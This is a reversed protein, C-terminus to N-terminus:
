WGGGLAKYLAVLNTNLTARSQTLADESSYLSRQADLVDLFNSLGQGYRIQALELAKRNANMAEVLSTQRQKEATYSALSDEVDKLATLVAQEYTAASQRERSEAAQINARTAPYNLLGWSFSSGFSWISAAGSLLKSLTGSQGGTGGTLSFKPYLNSVAVGVRAASGAIEREAQRVDPRRRLLDSPLGVPVEPPAEPTAGTASLEAQVTSPEIGLLLAIAHISRQAQAELAPIAARTSEAQAKARVPDLDSTLGADRRLETLRLVEEQATLTRRAVALREQAQRLDLYNRATEATVTVLTNNLAEQTAQADAEAARVSARGGGFIDIEYSSDFGTQYLSSDRSVLNQGTSGGGRDSYGGTIGTNPLQRTASTYGRVARAERVREQAIRLDINGAIARNVLSDLLPDHFAQWWRTLDAKEVRVAADQQGAAYAAPLAPVATRGANTRVACGSLLLGAAGILTIKRAHKNM